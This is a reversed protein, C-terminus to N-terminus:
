RASNADSRSGQDDGDTRTLLMRRLSWLSVALIFGGGGFAAFGIGAPWNGAMMLRAGTWLYFGGIVVVIAALFPLIILTARRM